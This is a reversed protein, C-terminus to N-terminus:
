PSSRTDDITVADGDPVIGLSNVVYGLMVYAGVLMPIEVLQSAEYADELTAWTAESIVADAYLEEAARLLAAEVPTWLESASGARLAAFEAEGFGMEGAISMHAVWEYPIDALCATRLILLERERPTLGSRMLLTGAFPIWHRLLRPNHALTTFLNLDSGGEVAVRALTQEQIDSWQERPVPALRTRATRRTTEM